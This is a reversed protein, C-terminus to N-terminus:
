PSPHPRHPHASVLGADAWRILCSMLTGLMIGCRVQGREQADQLLQQVRILWRNEDARLVELQLVVAALLLFEWIMGGAGHWVDIRPDTEKLQMSQGYRLGFLQVVALWRHSFSSWAVLVAPLTWMVHLAIVSYVTMGIRKFFVRHRKRDAVIDFWSRVLHIAFGLYLLCALDRRSIAAVLLLLLTIFPVTWLCATLFAQWWPNQPGLLIGKNELYHKTSATKHM